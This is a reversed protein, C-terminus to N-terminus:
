NSKKSKNRGEKSDKRLQRMKKHFAEEAEKMKFIQKSTLFEKFKSEYKKDIEGEKIKADAWAQSAKDYDKDNVNKDEQVKKKLKAADSIADKKENQMQQYLEFFHQQQDEKLGMEQALYKMKFEKLEKLKAEKDSSKQSFGTASVTLIAILLIIIKKM